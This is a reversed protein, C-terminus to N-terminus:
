KKLCALLGCCPYSIPSQRFPTLLGMPYKVMKAVPKKLIFPLDHLMFRRRDDPVGCPGPITLPWWMGEKLAWEPVGPGEDQPLM